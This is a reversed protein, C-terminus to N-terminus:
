ACVPAQGGVGRWFITPVLERLSLKSANRQNMIHNQIALEPAHETMLREFEDLTEAEIHLGQIDSDSVFVGAEDDWMAAIYFTRM